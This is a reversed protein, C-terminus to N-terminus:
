REKLQRKVEYRDIPDLLTWNSIEDVTRKCGSCVKNSDLNCRGVCPSDEENFSYLNIPPLELDGWEISSMGRRPM